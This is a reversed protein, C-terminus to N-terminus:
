NGFTILLHSNYNTISKNSAEIVICQSDQTTKKGYQEIKIIQSISKEEIGDANVTEFDDSENSSLSINTILFTLPGIWHGSGSKVIMSTKRMMDNLVNINNTDTLDIMLSVKYNISDIQLDPNAKISSMLNDHCKTESSKLLNHITESVFSKEDIALLNQEDYGFRLSKGSLYGLMDHVIVFASDKPMASPVLQCSTFPKFDIGKHFLIQVINFHSQIPTTWYGRIGIVAGKNCTHLYENLAVLDPNTVNVIWDTKALDIQGYIKAIEKRKYELENAVTEMKNTVDVLTSSLSANKGLLNAIEISYENTMKKLQNNTEQLTEYSARLNEFESKRLCLRMEYTQKTKELENETAALKDTLKRNLDCFEDIRKDFDLCINLIKELSKETDNLDKNETLRMNPFYAEHNAIKEQVKKLRDLLEPNTVLSELTTECSKSFRMEDFFVWMIENPTLSDSQSFVYTRDEEVITLTKKKSDEVINHAGSRWKKFDKQINENSYNLKTSDVSFTYHPLTKLTIKIIFKSDVTFVYKSM